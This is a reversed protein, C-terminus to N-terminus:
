RVESNSKFGSSTEILYPSINRTQHVGLKVQDRRRCVWKPQQDEEEELGEGERWCTEM